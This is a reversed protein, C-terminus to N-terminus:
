DFSVEPVQSASDDNEFYDAKEFKFISALINKPFKRISTNYEQAVNNYDRRATAIRNETGALEDTLATYQTNAKLDPYAETVANVWIDIARDLQEGAQQQAEVSGAKSVAARAETVATYTSQEYDTYGKVSAVFNPILDARRQLQTAVQAQASEVAENKEILSNYGSVFASIVIIVAVLIAAVVALLIKKNKKM